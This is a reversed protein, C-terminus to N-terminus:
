RLQITGSLSSGDTLTITVVYCFGPKRPTQWNYVFRGSTTDYRLGTGGNALIEIDDTPGGSCQSQTATLPQIVISTDTLETSGTFVEFTLPVTAGSKVMNWVGGMDVPQYFGNVTWPLVTYTASATTVNGATDTASAM